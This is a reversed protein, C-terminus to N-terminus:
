NEHPKAILLVSVAVFTWSGESGLQCLPSGTLHSYVPWAPDHPTEYTMSERPSEEDYHAEPPSCLANQFRDVFLM